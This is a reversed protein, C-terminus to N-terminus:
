KDGKSSKVEILHSQLKKPINGKWEIIKGDLLQFHTSDSNLSHFNEENGLEQYTNKAKYKM